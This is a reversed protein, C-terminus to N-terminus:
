RVRMGIGAVSSQRSDRPYGTKASNGASNVIAKDPQWVTTKKTAPM